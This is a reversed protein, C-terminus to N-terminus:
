LKKYQGRDTFLKYAKTPQLYLRPKVYFTTNLSPYKNLWEKKIARCIREEPYPPVNMETLAWNQINLAYGDRCIGPASTKNFFQAEPINVKDDNICIMMSPTNGSYLNCSLYNDWGGTFNLVPLLIWCFAVLKNANKWITKANIEHKFFVMWLLIIMVINWPWVIKNYALGIPGLLFLIFVHMATLIYVAPKKTITFMLGLSCALEIVPLAYGAYHIINNHIREESLKFYRRLITHDWVSLLFGGNFKNIASYFYTGILICAISTIIHEAKNKYIIFIFLMFLYQYEWPQWRNQDLACSSLEAILLLLLIKKNPIVIISALCIVSIVLLSVHVAESARFAEILPIVPFLRSSLWVKWGVLKAILWFFCTIRLLLTYVPQKLIDQLFM